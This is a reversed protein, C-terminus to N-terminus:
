LLQACSAKKPSIRISNVSWSKREGRLCQSHPLHAYYAFQKIIRSWMSVAARSKRSEQASFQITGAFTSLLNTPCLFNDGDRVVPKARSTFWTMNQQKRSLRPCHDPPPPADEPLINQCEPQGRVFARRSYFWILISAPTANDKDNCNRSYVKHCM